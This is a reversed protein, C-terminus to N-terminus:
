GQQYAALLLDLETIIGILAPRPEHREVVPLCGLHLSCLRAAADRLPTDPTIAYPKPRMAKAVPDSPSAAAPRGAPQTLLAEQLDRYSLIGVLRGNEEVLLHRLRAFRMLHHAESLLEDPPVTVFDRRMVRRVPLSLVEPLRDPATPQM